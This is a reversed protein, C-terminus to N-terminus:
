APTPEIDVRREEKSEMYGHDDVTYVLVEGFIMEVDAVKDDPIKEIYKVLSRISNGHAVLLVCMGDRLLPLVNEIYFPVSREYVDKLTEGGPVPYDWSRRLKNFAEEGIEEKVQWKNKGTYVGYDRENLASSREYDVGFQGCSDLMTELTELARIQQSCFAKDIKFDKIIEGQRAAGMFGKKTLHVDTSGTWVGKANWESEGHRAILLVGKKM